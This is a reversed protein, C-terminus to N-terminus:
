KCPLVKSLVCLQVQTCWTYTYLMVLTYAYVTSCLYHDNTNQKL